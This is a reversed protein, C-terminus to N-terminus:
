DTAPPILATVCVASAGSGATALADVTMTSRGLVNMFFTPKVESVIAEVYGAHGAFASPAVPPTHITVSIGNQFDFNNLLAAHRGFANLRAANAPLALSADRRLELAAQRAAADAAAGMQLRYDFMFGADVALATVGLLVTLGLATIILISGSEGTRRPTATLLTASLFWRSM